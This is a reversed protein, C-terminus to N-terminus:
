NHHTSTKSLIITSQNNVMIKLVEIEVRTVEKVLGAIWVGQCMALTIVIYKAECSSLAVVKQKLSSWTIPLGSIVHLNFM